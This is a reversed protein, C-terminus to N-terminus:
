GDGNAAAKRLSFRFRVPTGAKSIVGVSWDYRGIAPDAARGSMVAERVHRLSRKAAPNMETKSVLRDLERVTM